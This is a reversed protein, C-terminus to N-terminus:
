QKGAPAAAGSKGSSAAAKAASAGNNTNASANFKGYSDHTIGKGGSAKGGSIAKNSSAKDTANSAKGAAFSAAKTAHVARETILQADIEAREARRRQELVDNVAATTRRMAWERAREGREKDADAKLLEYRLDALTWARLSCNRAIYRANIVDTSSAFVAREGSEHWILARQIAESFRMLKVLPQLMDNVERNSEKRVLYKTEGYATRSTILSVELKAADPARSFQVNFDEPFREELQKVLCEANKIDKKLRREHDDHPHGEEPDIDLGLMRREHKVKVTVLMQGGGGRQQHQWNDMNITPQTYPPTGDAGGHRDGTIQSIMEFSPTGNGRPMEIEREARRDRTKQGGEGSLMDGTNLAGNMKGKGKEDDSDDDSSDDDSCHADDVYPANTRSGVGPRGATWAAAAESRAKKEALFDREMQEQRKAMGELTSVISALTIAMDADKPQANADAM